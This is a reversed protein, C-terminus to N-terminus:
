LYDSIPEAMGFSADDLAVQVLLNKTHNLILPAAFNITSKQIDSHIIVLAYVRIDDGEEIKLLNKYFLPVEFSYERLRSPDILTFSVGEKELTSFFDDVKSFSVEEISDFGLIPSVIKFNM